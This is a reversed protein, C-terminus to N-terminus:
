CPLLYTVPNQAKSIKTFNVISKGYYFKQNQDMPLGKEYNDDVFFIRNENKPTLIIDKRPLMHKAEKCVFWETPKYVAVIESKYVGFVYDMTEARSKSAKWIGRVANYLDIDSINDKYRQNIKIVLIRHKIDVESLKPTKSGFGLNKLASLNKPPIKRM